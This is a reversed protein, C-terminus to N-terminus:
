LQSILDCLAHYNAVHDTSPEGVLFTDQPKISQDHLLRLYEAQSPFVGPRVFDEPLIGGHADTGNHPDYLTNIHCLKTFPLFDTTTQDFADPDYTYTHCFDNTFGVLNRECLDLLGTPSAPYEPVPQLRNNHNYTAQPILEVLLATNLQHATRGLEILAQNRLAVSETDPITDFDPDPEMLFGNDLDLRMPHTNGSHVNVYVAQWASAHELCQGILEISEQQEPGPYALNAEHGSKTIGWFHLGFPINSQQMAEFIHQYQEALDIRFWVEVFKPNVALKDKWNKPGIKIGPILM